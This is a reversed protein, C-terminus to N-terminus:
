LTLVLVRVCVRGLQESSLIAVLNYYISEM